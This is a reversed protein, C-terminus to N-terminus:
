FLSHQGPEVYPKNGLFSDVFPSVVPITGIPNAVNVFDKVSAKAGKLNGTSLALAAVIPDEVFRLSPTMMFSGVLNKNQSHPDLIKGFIGMGGAMIKSFYRIQEGRSMNAPNPPTLGNGLAVLVESLSGLMITGLAMNLGYMFKAQYSDFDQMGGVWVRRMYQIPYAKFQMILRVAEGGATGTRTNFTTIMNTYATPNLVANEHMTDFLGFVKRYLTSQYESLPVIKDGKEWLERIEKESMSTVNDTSFMSKETKARLADWEVETISFKRLNAQVQNGLQNFSKSSDKGLGKMIPVMASLKNGQDWATLGTKHFFENSLKNVTDSVGSSEVYRSIYGMHTNLSAGMTRALVQREASPMLNFANTIGDFYASWYGYGARQAMGGIQSIDSLSRFVLNGLRAASSLSRIGAGVNAVTPSWAARNVGLLNKFLSDTLQYQVSNLPRTAVQVHRMENYMMEPASGMIEAMGIQRGSTNIDMLWSKFLSQQGFTADGIGWSKWDKFKYFMHRSREIKGWDKAVVPKTFLVGNGQMINDFTNGIMQEVIGLDIEGDISMAKTDKFTAEIDILSKMTQVFNEKGMKNLSSPNYTNRFFRDNNIESPQLANSKIMMASRSDVYDKLKDGIAQVMPNDSKMGDAHAYIEDNLSGNTLVDLEEKSLTNFSKEHLVQKAANTATEINYDANRRTKELFSGMDAGADMKKKITEWKSINMAATASESLIASLNDNNIEKMAAQRAFPIGERELERTRSAVKRIYDELEEGSFLNLAQRATDVCESKIKAM